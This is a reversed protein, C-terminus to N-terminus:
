IHLLDTIDDLLVMGDFEYTGDARHVVEEEKDADHEDQIDGVIEELLDEMTVLGSTGGYEDAVVVLQVRNHQLTQFVKIIDM